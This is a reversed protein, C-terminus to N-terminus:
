LAANQGSKTQHPNPLFIIINLTCASTRFKACTLPIHKYTHTSSNTQLFNHFHTCFHPHVFNQVDACGCVRSTHAVHMTHSGSNKKQFFIKSIHAFTRTYSIKCMRAGVCMRLTPLTTM